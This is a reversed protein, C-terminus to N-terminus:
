GTYTAATSLQTAQKSRSPIIGPEHKSSSGTFVTSSVTNLLNTKTSTLKNKLSTKSSSLTATSNKWLASTATIAFSSTNVVAFSAKLFNTTTKLQRTELESMQSTSNAKSYDLIQSSSKATVQVEKSTSIQITTKENDYYSSSRQMSKSTMRTFMSANGNVNTPFSTSPTTVPTKIVDSSSFPTSVTSLYDLSYTTTQMPLTIQNNTSLSKVQLTSLLTSQKQTLSVHMSPSWTNNLFSSVITNSMTLESSLSIGPNKSSTSSQAFVTKAIIQTINMKTSSNLTSSILPTSDLTTVLASLSPTKSMTGNSIIMQIFSTQETLPTTKNIITKSITSNTASSTNLM